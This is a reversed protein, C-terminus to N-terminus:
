LRGSLGYISPGDSAQIKLESDKRLRGYDCLEHGPPMNWDTISIQVLFVVLNSIVNLINAFIILM